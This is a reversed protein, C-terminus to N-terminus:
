GITKRISGKIKSIAKLIWYQKKGLLFTIIKQGFTGVSYIDFVRKHKKIVESYFAWENKDKSYKLCDMGIGIADLQYRKYALQKLKGNSIDGIMRDLMEFNGKARPTYSGTLSEEKCVYHYLHKEQNISVKNCKKSLEYLFYFDEGCYIKEDFRLKGIADKKYVAGWVSTIMEGCLLKELFSEGTFDGTLSGSNVVETQELTERRNGCFCIQAGTKENLSVLYELYDPEVYDDSDIFAILEGQSLDLGKNRSSSVGSNKKRVYRIRKDKEAYGKCISGSKDTSGDDILLLEFNKYSQCLISDICKSLYKEQNYIPVIISVKRM